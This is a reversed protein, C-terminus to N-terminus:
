ADGVMRLPICHCSCDIGIKYFRKFNFGPYEFHLSGASETVGIEKTRQQRQLYHYVGAVSAPLYLHRLGAFLSFVKRITTMPMHENFKKM